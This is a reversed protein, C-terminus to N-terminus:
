RARAMRSTAANPSMRRNLVDSHPRMSREPPHVALACSSVEFTEEAANGPHDLWPHVVLGSESRQFRSDQSPLHRVGNRPRDDSCCNLMTGTRVRYASRPSDHPSARGGRAPPPPPANAHSARYAAM